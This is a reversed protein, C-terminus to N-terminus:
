EFAIISYAKGFLLYSTNIQMKPSLHIQNLGSNTEDPPFRLHRQRCDMLKGLSFKQENYKDDRHYFKNMRM